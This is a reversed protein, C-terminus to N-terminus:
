KNKLLWNITYNLKLIAYLAFMVIYVILNPMESQVILHIFLLFYSGYAFRQLIKWTKYTMKKRIVTFSTIFLPIMIIFSIVGYIPLVIDNNFFLILGQLVHPTIFIFGLISYEKRVSTLAIRITSKKKFAGTLM